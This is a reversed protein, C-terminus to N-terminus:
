EAVTGTGDGLEKPASSEPLLRGDLADLREHLPEIADDVARRIIAELESTRLAGDHDGAALQKDQHKKYEVIIKTMVLASGFVIAVIFVPVFMHEPKPTILRRM